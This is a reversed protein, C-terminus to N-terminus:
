TTGVREPRALLRETLLQWESAIPSTSVAQGSRRYWYAANSADGEQRHLHAHVLDCDLDGEGTQACEHARAWEGKGSWWLAQLALGLDAPPADNSLSRHFTEGTM